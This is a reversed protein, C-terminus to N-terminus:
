KIQAIEVSGDPHRKVTSGTKCPDHLQFERPPRFHVKLTATDSTSTYTRTGDPATTPEGWGGESFDLDDYNQKEDRKVAM